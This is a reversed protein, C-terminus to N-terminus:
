GHRAGKLRIEGTLLKEMVGRRQRQLAVRYADLLNIEEDVTALITAIWRQEGVSPITIQIRAFNPFKLALTDDVLGQSYRYFLHVIPPYKFLYAAFQGDLRDNPVCITYAPSVIGELTSLASVGQWMRLTNYGIDGTTIRKYSSKDESSSDKRNVDSRPIVGRDGTISLLPLDERNCEDRETFLEGLRLTSWSSGNSAPGRRRATLLERMLGRRLRRALTLLNAIRGEAEEWISLVDVIQEQEQVTPLAIPLTKLETSNISALNTSRKSCSLFYRKAHNSSIFSALYEPCIRTKIARIAFIHNQHLCREIESRWLYGRGLKDFDGGETVLVDGTRLLYRDVDKRSVQVTKVQSLDLFGDQVNAVRLYPMSVPDAIGNKGLALGTQIRAVEGLLTRSWDCPFDSKM